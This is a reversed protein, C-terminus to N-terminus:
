LPNCAGGRHGSHDEQRPAAQIHLLSRLVAARQFMPVLYQKVQTTYWHSYLKRKPNRSYWNLIHVEESSPALYVADMEVTKKALAAAAREPPTQVM